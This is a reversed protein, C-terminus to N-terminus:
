IGSGPSFVLRIQERFRASLIQEFDPRPPVIKGVLAANTHLLAKGNTDVIAVDYIYRWDGPDSQLLNNLNVDTQVYDALARRVRAPDSTDVSTSSFDPVANGAAYALQHTLSTATENASAIRLRLIQSIYLYSFASVMVTVMLTIVLVIITKRRM